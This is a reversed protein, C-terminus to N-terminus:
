TRQSSVFSHITMSAPFELGAFIGGQVVEDGFVSEFGHQRGVGVSMEVVREADFVELLTVSDGEGERGLILKQDVVGGRATRDETHLDAGHGGDILIQVLHGLDAEPVGDQLDEAGGPM